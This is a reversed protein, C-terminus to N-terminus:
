QWPCLGFGGEQRACQGTTRLLPRAGQATSEHTTGDAHKYCFHLHAAESETQMSPVGTDALLVGGRLHGQERAWSAGLCEKLADTLVTTLKHSEKHGSATCFFWMSPGYSIAPVIYTKIM